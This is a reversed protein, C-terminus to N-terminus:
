NDESDTEDEEYGETVELNAEKAMQRLEDAMAKKHRFTQNYAREENYARHRDGMEQKRVALVLDGRRIIGDPSSGLQLEDVAGTGQKPRRYAVWGKDHSNGNEVYPKYAIWRPELGQKEIDAAIDAPLMLKNRFFDPAGVASVSRKKQSLPKKGAVTAKSM